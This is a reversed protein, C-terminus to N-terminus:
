FASARGFIALFLQGEMKETRRGTQSGEQRRAIKNKNIVKADKMQRPILRGHKQRPFLCEFIYDDGASVKILSFFLLCAPRQTGRIQKLQRNRLRWFVGVSRAKINRLQLTEGDRQM